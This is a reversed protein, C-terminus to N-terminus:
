PTSGKPLRHITLDFRRVEPCDVDLSGFTDIAWRALRGMAERRVPEPLISFRAGAAHRDLFAGPRRTETWTAVTVVAPDPMARALWALAEDRPKDRYPQIDMANLIAALRTKMGTDIGDDPAIVRGIMLAGGPRLVRIIDGLMARWGQAGSLVQVLLVVDFAADGFPLLAGDAQVLAADRAQLVFSRLMGLSLDVGFYDDGARVLGRGIRGSGAGLDLIRPRPALSARLITARIAEPIGKPLARRRDFDPAMADYVNM